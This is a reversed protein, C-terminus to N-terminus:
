GPSAPRADLCNVSRGPSLKLGIKRANGALDRFARAILPDPNMPTTTLTELVEPAAQGLARLRTDPGPARADAERPLQEALNLKWRAPFQM